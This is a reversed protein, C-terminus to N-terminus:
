NGTVKVTPCLIPRLGHAASLSMCATYQGWSKGRYREGAYIHGFFVFLVEVAEETQSFGTSERGSGPSMELQAASIATGARLGRGFPPHTDSRPTPRPICPPLLPVPTLHNSCCGPPSWCLHSHKWPLPHLAKRVQAPSAATRM